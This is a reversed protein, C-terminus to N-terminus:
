QHSAPWTIEVIFFVIVKRRRRRTIGARRQAWLSASISSIKLVQFSKDTGPPVTLVAARSIKFVINGVGRVGNIVDARHRFLKDGKTEEQEFLLTFNSKIIIDVLIKRVERIVSGRKGNPVKNMVGTADPVVQGQHGQFTATVEIMTSNFFDIFQNLGLFGEVECRPLM